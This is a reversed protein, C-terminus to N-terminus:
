PIKMKTLAMFISRLPSSVAPYFCPMLVTVAALIFPRPQRRRKTTQYTAFLCSKYAHSEVGVCPIPRNITTVAPSLRLVRLVLGSGKCEEM